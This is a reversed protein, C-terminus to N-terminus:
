HVFVRCLMDHKDNKDGLSTTLFAGVNIDGYVNFLEAIAKADLPNVLTVFLTCRRMRDEYEVEEPTLPSPTFRFYRPVDISLMVKGELHKLDMFFVPKNQCM